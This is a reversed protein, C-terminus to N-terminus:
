DGTRRYEGREIADALALPMKAGGSMGRLWAVIDADRRALAAVATDRETMLRAAKAELQKITEDRCAIGDYGSPHVELRASLAGRERTLEDIHALIARAEEASFTDFAMEREALERLRAIADTM